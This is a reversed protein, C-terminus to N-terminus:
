QIYSCPVGECPPVPRLWVFLVLRVLAPRRLGARGDGARAQAAPWRRRSRPLPARGLADWCKTQFVCELAVNGTETGRETCGRTDGGDIADIAGGDM